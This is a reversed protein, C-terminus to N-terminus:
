PEARPRLGPVGVDLVLRQFHASLFTFCMTMPQMSRCMPLVVFGEESDEGEDVYLVHLIVNGVHDGSVWHFALLVHLHSGQLSCCALASRLCPPSGHCAVDPVVGGGLVDLFGLVSLVLDGVLCLVRETGVAPQGALRLFGRCGLRLAMSSFFVIVIEM